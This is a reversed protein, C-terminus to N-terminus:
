IIGQTVIGGTGRRSGVMDHIKQVGSDKIGRHMTKINAPQFHTGCNHVAEESHMKKHYVYRVGEPIKGSRAMGVWNGWFESRDKGCNM